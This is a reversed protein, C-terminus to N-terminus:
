MAENLSEVLHGSRYRPLGCIDPAQVDTVELWVFHVDLEEESIAVVGGLPVWGVKAAKHGAPRLALKIEGSGICGLNSTYNPIDRAM